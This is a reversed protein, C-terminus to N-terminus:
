STATVDGPTYYCYGEVVPECKEPLDIPKQEPYRDFVEQFASNCSDATQSYSSCAAIVTNLSYDIVDLQPKEYTAKMYMDEKEM